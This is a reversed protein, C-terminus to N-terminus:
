RRGLGAFQRGSYPGVNVGTRLCQAMAARCVQGDEARRHAVRFCSAAYTSCTQPKAQWALHLRARYSRGGDSSQCCKGDMRSAFAPAPALSWLAGCLALMLIVALKRM